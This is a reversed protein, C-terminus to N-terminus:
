SAKEGAEICAQRFDKLAKIRKATNAPRNHYAGWWKPLKGDKASFFHFQERYVSGQLNEEVKQVGSKHAFYAGGLRECALSLAVCSFPTTKDELLSIALDIVDLRPGHTQNKGSM